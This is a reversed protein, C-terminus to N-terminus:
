KVSFIAVIYSAINAVNQYIGVIYTPVVISLSYTCSAKRVSSHDPAFKFLKTKGMHVVPLRWKTPWYLVCLFQLIFCALPDNRGHCDIIVEVFCM